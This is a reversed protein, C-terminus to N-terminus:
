PLQFVLLVTNTGKTDYSALNRYSLNVSVCYRMEALGMQSLLIPWEAQKRFCM